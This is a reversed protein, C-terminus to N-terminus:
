TLPSYALMDYQPENPQPTYRYGFKDLILFMSHSTDGNKNLAGETVELFLNPRSIELIRSMGRLVKVDYGEADIKVYNIRRGCYTGAPLIEDLATTMMKGEPYPTLYHQGINACPVVEAVRDWGDSLPLRLVTINPQDAFNLGAAEVCDPNMDIALVRGTPGVRKAYRCAHDGLECGIDIATGGVPLVLELDPTWINAELSKHQEIWRSLHTDEKFVWIGEPTQMLKPNSM